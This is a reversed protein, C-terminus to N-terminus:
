EGEVPKILDDLDAVLYKNLNSGEMKFRRVNTKKRSLKCYLTNPSIGLYAAAEKHTLYKSNTM